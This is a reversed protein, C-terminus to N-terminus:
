LGVSQIICSGAIGDVAIYFSKPSLGFEDEVLTLTYSAGDAVSKAKLMAGGDVTGSASSSVKGASGEFSIVASRWGPGPDVRVATTAGPTIVEIEAPPVSTFDSAM